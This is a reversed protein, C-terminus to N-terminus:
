NSYSPQPPTASGGPIHNGLWTQYSAAWTGDNRIEQLVGNVFSVFDKDQKPMALGYPEDAISPGVIKTNPDQAVMGALITDDTSVGAVQGQQLMVLCDSWDSVAVPIPHTPQDQIHNLSDSGTAACIKKGGLQAISTVNSSTPVLLREQADYYVTSFAVDALRDCSITMTRAVIDVEGSQLASVRQASTIAKFEIKNPDGFIAAAVDRAMDIDFGEIQNNEPNRYGFLYTNQDVGAILYGRAYIKAMTTGSPMQGPSPLPNPPALSATPNTCNAPSPGAPPVAAAGQVMGVPVPENASSVTALNVPAATVGCGTVVLTLLAAGALVAAKTRSRASRPDARRTM